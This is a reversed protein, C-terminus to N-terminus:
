VVLNAPFQLNCPHNRFIRNASVPCYGGPTTYGFPEIPREFLSSAGAATNLGLPATEYWGLAFRLSARPPALLHFGARFPRSLPPIAPLIPRGKLAKTDRWPWGPRHGPSTHAAGNPTFPTSCRGTGVDQRAVTKHAIVRHVNRRPPSLSLIMPCPSSHSPGLEAARDVLPM